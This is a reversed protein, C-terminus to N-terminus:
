KLRKRLLWDTDVKNESVVFDHEAFKEFGYKAYFKQAKFNHEWVGLWVWEFDAAKAMDLALEFLTKGLGYGQFAKLIYIRQIEFANDLEQETQQSGWNVKLYGALEDDVYVFRHDSEDSSLEAKLVDPHYDKNFFAQLQEETTDHGFTERYTDMALQRLTDVQHPSIPEIKINSM